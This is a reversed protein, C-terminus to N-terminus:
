AEDRLQEKAQAGGRAGPHDRALDLADPDPDAGQRPALRAPDRAAAHQLGAARRPLLPDRAPGAGPQRAHRRAARASTPAWTSRASPSRCGKMGEVVERYAEYQEDEDPQDRRNMFLFESRFLGIGTAGSAKVPEVDRPLEINAYLQV